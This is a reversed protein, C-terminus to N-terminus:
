MAELTALRYIDIIDFTHGAGADAAGIEGAGHIIDRVLIRM